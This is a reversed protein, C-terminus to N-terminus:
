GSCRGWARYWNCGLQDSCWHVDGVHCARMGPDFYMYMPYRAYFIITGSRAYAGHDCGYDIGVSGDQRSAGYPFSIAWQAYLDEQLPAGYFGSMWAAQVKGGNLYVNPACRKGVQAAVRYRYGYPPTQRGKYQYVRIWGHRAWDPATYETLKFRGLETEQGRGM